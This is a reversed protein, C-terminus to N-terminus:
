PIHGAPQPWSAIESSRARTPSASYGLLRGIPAGVALGLRQMWAPPFPLRVTDFYAQAIVALRFPNPMGKRNTKGENALSFMTALLEEFQLAPSVEAIFHAETDGANWFRHSAGAPVTVSEGAALELTRGDVRFGVSGGLVSFHEDQSPHVHTTAVFGGPKVWTEVVSLEGGTEAATRRFRIREGTVRNEIIDGAHFMGQRREIM